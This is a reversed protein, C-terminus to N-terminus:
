AAMASSDREGAEDGHTSPRGGTPGGRPVSTEMLTLARPMTAPAPRRLDRIAAILGVLLIAAAAAILVGILWPAWPLAQHWFTGDQRDVCEAAPPWVSIGKDLGGDSPNPQPCGGGWSAWLAVAWLVFASVALV